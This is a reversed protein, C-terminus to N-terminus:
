LEDKRDDMAIRRKTTGDGTEDLSPLKGHLDIAAKKQEETLSDPFDVWFEVIMNGKHGSHYDPIGEKEIVIKEGPKMVKGTKIAVLRGDLQRVQRSVGVLAESLTIQLRYHLDNGIRVFRDHKMTDIEFRVNGTRHDPIEDTENEFVIHQGDRMGKEVDVLLMKEVEEFQGGPCSKCNPNGIKGTGGCVPCHTQIQQVFGPGIRKTQIVVGRGGCRSCKKECDSWSSCIVRKKHTVEMIGGNYLTELPVTVPITVDPVTPEERQRRRGGFGGFGGFFSGGFPDFDDDDDAMANNIGDEGFMDYKQRKNDDSLVEYANNLEVYKKQASKDGPNKDPHYKVALKRFARKITASDADRAVGLIDYYDRGAYARTAFCLLVIFLIVFLFPHVNTHSRPRKRSSRPSRNRQCDNRM